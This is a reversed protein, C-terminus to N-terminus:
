LTNATFTRGPSNIPFIQKSNPLGTGFIYAISVTGSPSPLVSPVTKGLVSRGLGIFLM